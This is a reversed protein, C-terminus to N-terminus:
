KYKVSDRALKLCFQVLSPSIKELFYILKGMFTLTMLSRRRRVMRLVARAVDDESLQGKRSVTIYSGDYGMVKKGPHNRVIGVHILGIHVRYPSLEIRLSEAFTDLGAKAASYPSMNPMGHLAAISSIFIISGKARIIEPLAARTASVATLLNSTIIEPFVEPILDEFRGRM